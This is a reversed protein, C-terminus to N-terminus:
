LVHRYKYPTKTLSPSFTKYSQSRAKLKKARKKMARLREKSELVKPDLEDKPADMIYKINYTQLEERTVLLNKYTRV